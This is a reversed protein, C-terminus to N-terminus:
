KAGDIQFTTTCRCFDCTCNDFPPFNKGVIAEQPDFSHGELSSCVDCTREDNMTLISYHCKLYQSQEQYGALEVYAHALRKLKHLANQSFDESCFHKTLTEIHGGIIESIAASARAEVSFEKRELLFSYLGSAYQDTKFTPIDAIHEDSAENLAIIAEKVKGSYILAFASEIKKSENDKILSENSESTFPNGNHLYAECSLDHGDVAQKGKNTLAYYRAPFAAAVLKSNVGYMISAILVDKKGTVKVGHAKMFEKLEAVTSHKLAVEIPAIALYGDDIFQKIQKKDSTKGDSLYHPYTFGVESRNAYNLKMLGKYSLSDDAKPEKTNVKLRDVCKPRPVAIHTSNVMDLAISGWLEKEEMSLYSAYDDRGKQFADIHSSKASPTKLEQIKQLTYNGYRKIFAKIADTRLTGGAQMEELDSVTSGDEFSVENGLSAREVLFDNLYDLRSFFTTPNNTNRLINMTEEAHKVLLQTQQATYFEAGISAESSCVETIPPEEHKEPKKFFPFHFGM